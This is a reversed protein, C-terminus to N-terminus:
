PSGETGTLLRRLMALKRHDPRPLGEESELWPALVAPDPTLYCVEEWFRLFEDFGAAMFRNNAPDQRDVFRVPGPSKENELELVLSKEDKMELLTLGNEGRADDKGIEELSSTIAQGIDFSSIQIPYSEATQRMM